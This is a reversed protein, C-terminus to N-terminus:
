LIRTQIVLQCVLKDNRLNFNQWLEKKEKKPEQTELIFPLTIQQNNLQYTRKIIVSEIYKYYKEDLINNNTYITHDIENFLSTIINDKLKKNETITRFKWQFEILDLEKALLLAKEIPKWKRKINRDSQNLFKGLNM